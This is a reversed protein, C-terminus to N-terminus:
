SFRRNKAIPHKGVMRPRTAPAPRTGSCSSQRGEIAEVAENFVAENMGVLQGAVTRTKIQKKLPHPMFVLPLLFWRRGLSAFWITL